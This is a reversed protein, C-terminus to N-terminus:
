CLYRWIRETQKIKDTAAYSLACNENEMGWYKQIIKKKKEAAAVWGSWCLGSWYATTLWCCLGTSNCLQGQTENQKVEIDVDREVQLTSMNDVCWKLHINENLRSYPFFHKSPKLFRTASTDDQRYNNFFFTNCLHILYLLKFHLM